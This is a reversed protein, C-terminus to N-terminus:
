EELIAILEDKDLQELYNRITLWSRLSEMKGRQRFLNTTVLDVLESHTM